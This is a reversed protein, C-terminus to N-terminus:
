KSLQMRELKNKVIAISFVLMSAMLAFMKSIVESLEPIEQESLKASTITLGSFECFLMLICFSLLGLMLLEITYEKIKLVLTSLQLAVILMTFISFFQMFFEAYILFTM